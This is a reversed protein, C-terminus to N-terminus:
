SSSIVSISNASIQQPDFKDITESADLIEIGIVKGSADTDVVIADSVKKSVAYKGKGLSIYLTDMQENYRINM